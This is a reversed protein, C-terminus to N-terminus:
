DERDPIKLDKDYNTGAGGPNFPSHILTRQDTELINFTFGRERRVGAPPIDDLLVAPFVATSM